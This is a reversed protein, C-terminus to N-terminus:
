HYSRHNLRKLFQSQIEECCDSAMPMRCVLLALITTYGQEITRRWRVIERRGIANRLQNM